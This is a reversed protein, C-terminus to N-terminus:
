DHGVPDNGGWRDGGRSSGACHSTGCVARVAAELESATTASPSVVGGPATADARRVEDASDDDDGGRNAIVFGGLVLVAIAAAATLAQMWRAHRRSAIPVVTPATPGGVRLEDFVSLAAAIAADRHAPSAPSTAAVADGIHRLRAVEALLEPDAEVRAREDATAEGDLYASALEVADLNDHDAMM